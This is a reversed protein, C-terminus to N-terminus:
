LGALNFRLRIGAATNGTVYSTAVKPDTLMQDYYLSVTFNQGILYDATSRISFVRQGATAQNTNEVIKRIVTLNDRISLDFRVNLDSPKLPQGQVNIPLKVNSFKYGLGIVTESGVMETVQNNALSLSASRDKNIEFKTLLGNGKITWTADFGILPSFRESITVNQIQQLPIFNDRMDRANLFGDADTEANLNTQMGSVTVTSTYGHRLTFNQVYKKMFEFKSLGNYSLQWNPLPISRLPSISRENVDQGKFTSLFAGVIVDQQEPGYGAYYGASDVASNPNGRGLFDSVEERSQRMNVFNNSLYNDASTLNEFASNISITTYTV